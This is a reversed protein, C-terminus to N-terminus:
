DDSDATAKRKAVYSEWDGYDSFLHYQSHAGPTPSAHRIPCWHHETRAAIERAYAILGNAYGCYACNLKEFANLYQLRHRDIVVYDSRRVKPIDYLSFIIWHFLTMSMDLFVLPLIMSYMVPAIIIGGVGADYLFRLLKKAAKRHRAAIERPFTVRGAIIQYGYADKRRELADAIRRELIQIQDLVYEVSESM